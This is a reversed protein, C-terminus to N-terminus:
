HNNRARALRTQKTDKYSKVLQYQKLIRDQNLTYPYKQLFALKTHGSGVNRWEGQCKLRYATLGAAEIAILDLPAQYLAVELGEKPTTKMAGAAARLYNGQLSRLLNRTEVKRVMSWWVIAAYLLKPLLIAKYMWLVIKPNIGWSNGIARRCVWM